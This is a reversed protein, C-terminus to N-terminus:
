NQLHRELWFVSLYWVRAQINEETADVPLGKFENALSQDFADVMPAITIEDYQVGLNDAM